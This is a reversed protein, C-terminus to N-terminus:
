ASESLSKSFRAYALKINFTCKEICSAFEMEKAIALAREYYAIATPYDGKQLYVNGIDSLNVPYNRRGGSKLLLRDVQLHLELSKDLDGLGMYCVGMEAMIAPPMDGCGGATALAFSRGLWFLADRYQKGAMYTKGLGALAVCYLYTGYKEEQLDVMSQYLKQATAFDHELYAVMAQRVRIEGQLEPLDSSSALNEARSLLSRSSEYRGLMALMYGRHMDLAIVSENDQPYPIGLSDLYRLAEHTHGRVSLIQARIFNFAWFERQSRDTGVAQIGKESAKWASDIYGNRLLALATRSCLDISKTEIM